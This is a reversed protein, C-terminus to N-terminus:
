KIQIGINVSPNGRTEARTIYKIWPNSDVANKAIRKQDLLLTSPPIGVFVEVNYVDSPNSAGRGRKNSKRKSEGLEVRRLEGFTAGVVGANHILTSPPLPIAGEMFKLVDKPNNIFGLKKGRQMRNIDDQLRMVEDEKGQHEISTTIWLFISAMMGMFALLSLTVMLFSKDRREFLPKVKKNPIGLSSFTIVEQEFSALAESFVEQMSPDNHVAVIIKEDNGELMRESLSSVVVDLAQDEKDGILTTGWVQHGDDTVTKVGYVILNDSFVYYFAGVTPDVFDQPLFISLSNRMEDLDNSINGYVTVYPGEQRWMAPADDSDGHRLKVNSDNPSTIDAYKKIRSYRPVLIACAAGKPSDQHLIRDDSYLLINM